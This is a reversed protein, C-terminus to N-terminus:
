RQRRPLTGAKVSVRHHAGCYDLNDGVKVRCKACLGRDCTEGTKAGTLPFDCQITVTNGCRCTERPKGRRCSIFTVGQKEKEKM